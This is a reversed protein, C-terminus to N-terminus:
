YIGRSPLCPYIHSILLERRSSPRAFLLAGLFLRPVYELFFDRVLQSHLLTLDNRNSAPKVLSVARGPHFERWLEGGTPLIAEGRPFLTPSPQCLYSSPQLLRSLRSLDSSQEHMVRNPHEASLGYSLQTAFFLLNNYEKPETHLFDGSVGYYPTLHFASPTSLHFPSIVDYMYM